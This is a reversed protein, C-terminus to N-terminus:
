WYSFYLWAALVDGILFGIVGGWVRHARWWSAGLLGGLVGGPVGVSFFMLALFWWPFNLGIDSLRGSGVAACDRM